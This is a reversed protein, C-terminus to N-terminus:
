HPKDCFALNDKFNSMIATLAKWKSVTFYHVSVQSGSKLIMQMVHCIYTLKLNALLTMNLALFCKEIDAQLMKNNSNEYKQNESAMYSYIFHTSHMMLYFM